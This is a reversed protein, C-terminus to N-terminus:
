EHFGLREHDANNMGKPLSPPYEPTLTAFGRSRDGQQVDHPNHCESCTFWRKKGDSAWEGTRKGHIGDRWDSLTQGHCGGCLTPTNDISLAQGQRDILKRRDTEAHCDLCWLSGKGHQFDMANPVIDTHMILQRPETNVPLAPYTGNHCAVGCVPYLLLQDVRTRVVADGQSYDAEVTQKPLPVTNEFPDQWWLIAGTKESCRINAQGNENLVPKVKIPLDRSEFCSQDDAFVPSFIILVLLAVNMRNM